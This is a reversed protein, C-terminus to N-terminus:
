TVLKTTRLNKQMVDRVNKSVKKYIAEKKLNKQKIKKM